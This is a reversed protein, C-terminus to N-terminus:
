RGSPQTDPLQPLQPASEPPTGRQDEVRAVVMPFAREFVEGGYQSRLSFSVPGLPVVSQEGKLISELYSNVRRDIAQSMTEGDQPQISTLGAISAAQQLTAVAQERISDQEAKSLDLGENKAQQVLIENRTLGQLVDSIIEDTSAALQGRQPAPWGRMVDLFEAASLEGGRYSVLGRNAARGRLQMGPKRAMEKANEIAGEQITVGLPEVLGEIYQQEAQSSREEIATQRFDDRVDDFDPTQREEVKIVHLGYPTEVLDSIEGPALAFAASDFPAMMRGRPFFGLDGGQAASGDASYEQALAGFDAGGRASDRLMTALARVSDRQAPAADAPMRILIHRARVQLGPANKEFEARLEDETFSSDVSIVKDRLKVVIERDVYPRILLDLQVSKLTSDQSAATALLVYDVWLNAVADVVEAQAPIQRQPAVMGAAREVSLEHGAARALVDTHSTMAQGLSDCATTAIAGALLVLAFLNRM